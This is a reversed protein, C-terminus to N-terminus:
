ARLDGPLSSQQFAERALSNRRSAEDRRREAHVAPIELPTVDFWYQQM